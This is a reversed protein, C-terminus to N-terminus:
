FGVVSENKDLKMKYIESLLSKINKCTTFYIQADFEASRQM